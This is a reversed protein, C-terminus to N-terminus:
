EQIWNTATSAAFTNKLFNHKFSLSSINAVHRTQYAENRAAILETLCHPAQKNYIKYLVFNISLVGALSLVNFM